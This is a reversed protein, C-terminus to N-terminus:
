QGGSRIVAAFKCTQREDTDSSPSVAIAHAGKADLELLGGSIRQRFRLAEYGAIASAAGSVPLSVASRTIRSRISGIRSRTPVSRGYQTVSHPHELCMNPVGDSPDLRSACNRLLRGFAARSQYLWIEDGANDITVPGGSGVFFLPKHTAPPKLCRDVAHM